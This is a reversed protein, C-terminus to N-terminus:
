FPDESPTQKRPLERAVSSILTCIGLSKKLKNDISLAISGRSLNSNMTEKYILGELIQEL